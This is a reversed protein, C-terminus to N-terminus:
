SATRLFACLWDILGAIDSPNATEFPTHTSRTPFTVLATPIDAKMFASGDSGFSGFVAHQIGIGAAAAARELRMTLDHDYHVFPDKHVLVPGEEGSPGTLETLTKILTFLRERDSSATVSM